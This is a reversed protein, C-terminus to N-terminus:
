IKVGEGDVNRALSFRKEQYAKWTLESFILESIFVKYKLSIEFSLASILDKDKKTIEKIVILIDIDSEKHFDGRAKSGFLKILMLRSSFKETLESKFDRLAKQENTTLNLVQM